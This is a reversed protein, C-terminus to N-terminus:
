DKKASYDKKGSLEHRKKAVVAAVAPQEFFKDRKKAMELRRKEIENKAANAIQAALIPGAAQAGCIPRDDDRLDEELALPAM